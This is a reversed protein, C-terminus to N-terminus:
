WPCGDIARRKSVVRLTRRKDTYGTERREGRRPLSAQETVITWAWDSAPWRPDLCPYSHRASGNLEAVQLPKEDGSVQLPTEHSRRVIFTSRQLPPHVWRIPKGDSSGINQRSHDVDVLGPGGSSGRYVPAETNQQDFQLVDVGEAPVAREPCPSPHIWSGEDVWEGGDDPAPEQRDAPGPSM